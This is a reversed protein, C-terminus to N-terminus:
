GCIIEGTRKECHGPLLHGSTNPCVSLNQAEGTSCTMGLEHHCPIDELRSGHCQSVEQTDLEGDHYM